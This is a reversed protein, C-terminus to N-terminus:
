SENVSGIVAWFNQLSSDDFPHTASPPDTSRCPGRHSFMRHHDRSAARRPQHQRALQGQRLDVDGDDLPAGALLEGARAGTTQVCARDLDEILATLTEPGRSNSIVVEYGRDVLGRALTSGIHGAGIIGVRTM